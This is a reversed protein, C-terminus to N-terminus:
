DDLQHIVSILLTKLPLTMETCVVQTTLQMLHTVIGGTFIISLLSPSISLMSNIFIGCESMSEAMVM